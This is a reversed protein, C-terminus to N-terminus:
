GVTEDVDDADNQSEDPFIMRVGGGIVPFCSLLLAFRMIRAAGEWDSSPGLALWFALAMGAMVMTVGFLRRM